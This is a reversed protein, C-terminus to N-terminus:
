LPLRLGTLYHSLLVITAGAVVAFSYPLSGYQSQVELRMGPVLASTGVNALVGPLRRQRKAVVGALIGGALCTYLIFDVTAPYGFVAAGAAILKVDGGGLWGRAHLLSGLVITASALLFAVLAAAWGATAFAAYM